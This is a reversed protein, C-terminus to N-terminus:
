DFIEETIDKEYTIKGNSIYYEYAFYSTVDVSKLSFDLNERESVHLLFNIPPSWATVFSIENENIIEFKWANWKTGWNKIGFEYWSYYGTELCKIIEKTLQIEDNSLQEINQELYNNLKQLILRKEKDELFYMELIKISFLREILDYHSLSETNHIKLTEPMPIYSEFGKEQFLEIFKKIKEKEGIIQLNNFCWNPM